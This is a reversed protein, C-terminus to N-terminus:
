VPLYDLYLSSVVLLSIAATFLSVQISIRRSATTNPARAAMVVKEPRPLRSLMLLLVTPSPWCPVARQAVGASTLFVKWETGKWGASHRFPSCSGSACPNTSPQTPFSGAGSSNRKSPFVTWGSMGSFSHFCPPIRARTSQSSTWQRMIPAEPTPLVAKKRYGLRSYAQALPM